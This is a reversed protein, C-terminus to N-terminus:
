AASSIARSANPLNKEDPTACHTADWMGTSVAWHLALAMVLLLRDLRDTRQLQSETLGFGRSKFDAFM